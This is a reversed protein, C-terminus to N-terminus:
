HPAASRTCTATPHLAPVRMAAAAGHLAKQYRGWSVKLHYKPVFVLLAGRRLGYVTAAEVHPQPPYPTAPLPGTLVPRCAPRGLLSLLLCVRPRAWRGGTVHRAAWARGVQAHLLLLLYLDSCQKQARKAGRHRENMVAAREALEGGPLPPASAPTPPGVLGGSSGSSGLGTASDSTSSAQTAVAALLQRHVVM